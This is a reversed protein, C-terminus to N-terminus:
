SGGGTQDMTRGRLRERDKRLEALTAAFLPPRTNLWRRLWLAGALAALLLTLAAIGIAALRDHEGVVLIVFLIALIVGVQLCLLSGLAILVMRALNLREEAVETSLLELRTWLLALFTDFLRRLSGFLGGHRESRSETEM